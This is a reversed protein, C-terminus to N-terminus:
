ENPHQLKIWAQQYDEETHYLEMCPTICLTVQCQDCQYASEHGSRKAVLFGHERRYKREAPCCVKCTRIRNKGGETQGIKELFHRGTLRLLSSASPGSRGEQGVREYGSTSILEKVVEKQFDKHELLAKKGRASMYEKQLLHANVIALSLMHFLAKKWWKLRYMNSRFCLNSNDLACMYQNYEQQSEPKTIEKESHHRKGTSASKQTRSKRNRRTGRAKTGADRLNHWLQPSTYCNNYHLTHGEQLYPEVLKSVIDHRMGKASLEKTKGGYLKFQCCYGNTADCLQYAKLGDGYKDPKDKCFNPHGRFPVVGEDVGIQQGPNWMTKFREVLTEYITGLKHM